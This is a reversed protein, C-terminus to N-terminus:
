YHLDSILSIATIEQKVTIVVHSIADLTTRIM